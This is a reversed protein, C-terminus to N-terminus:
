EKRDEDVADVVVGVVVVGDVDDVLIGKMRGNKKTTTKKTRNDDDGDDVWEGDKVEEVVKEDDYGCDYGYGYGVAPADEDEDYWHEINEESESESVVDESHGDYNM